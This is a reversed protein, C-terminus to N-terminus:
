INIYQSKTSKDYIDARVGDPLRHSVAALIRIHIHVPIYVYIYIYTSITYIYIYIYM